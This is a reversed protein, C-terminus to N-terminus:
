LQVRHFRQRQPQLVSQTAFIATKCPHGLHRGACTVDPSQSTSFLYRNSNGLSKNGGALAASATPHAFSTAGFSKRPMMLAPLRAPACSFHPAWM